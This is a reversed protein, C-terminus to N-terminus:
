ISHRNRLWNLVESALDKKNGAVIIGEEGPPEYFYYKKGDKPDTAEDIPIIIKLTRSLWAVVSGGVVKAKIRKPM